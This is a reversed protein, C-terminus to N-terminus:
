KPAEGEPAPATKEPSVQLYDITVIFTSLRRPVVLVRTDVASVAPGGPAGAAPEDGGFFGGLLSPAATVPTAAALVTVPASLVKELEKSAATVDVGTIAVSRGSNRITNIFTRLTRTEATFRVQFSLKEVLGERDFARKPAFEDVGRQLEPDPVYTGAGPKGEAVPVFLEVPERDVSDLYLPSGPSRAAVLQRFIFDIIQRQQDVRQFDRKPATGQNHIYRHFGFASPEALSLKIGNDAALKRWTDVSERLLASLEASNASSKGTIALDPNGALVLRLAAVHAEMAQLDEAAIKVNDDTLSVPPAEPDFPIGRLLSQQQQSVATLQKRTSESLAYADYAFWVGTLLLLAFALLGLNFGASKRLNQM